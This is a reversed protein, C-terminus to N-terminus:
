RWSRARRDYPAPLRWVLTGAPRCDVTWRTMSWRSCSGSSPSSRRDARREDARITRLIFFDRNGGDILAFAGLGVAVLMALLARRIGTGPIVVAVGDGLDDRCRRRCLPWLGRPRPQRRAHHRRDSLRERHVDGVLEPVLLAALRMVIRGGIGVGVLGVILGTIGGRAIDRFIPGFAADESTVKFSDCATATPRARRASSLSPARRPRWSRSASAWWPISRNGM